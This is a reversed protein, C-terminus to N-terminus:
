VEELEVDQLTIVKAIVDARKQTRSVVALSIIVDDSSYDAYSVEGEAMLLDGFVVKKVIQYDEAEKHFYVGEYSLSDPFQDGKGFVNNIRGYYMFDDFPSIVLISHDEFVVKVYWKELEHETVYVTKTKAFHSEGCVTVGTGFEIKSILEFM